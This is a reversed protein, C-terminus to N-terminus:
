TQSELDKLEIPNNNKSTSMEGLGTSMDGVEVMGEFFTDKLERWRSTWTGLFILILSSFIQLMVWSVSPLSSTYICVMFFNIAHVTIGFDWAM